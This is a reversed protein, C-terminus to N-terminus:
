WHRASRITCVMTIPTTSRWTDCLGGTLRAVVGRRNGDARMAQITDCLLDKTVAKSSRLKETQRDPRSADLLGSSRPGLGPRADTDRWRRSLWVIRTSLFSLGARLTSPALGM